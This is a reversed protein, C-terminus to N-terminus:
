WKKGDADKDILKRTLKVLRRKDNSGVYGRVVFWKGDNFLYGYCEVDSKVFADVTKDVRPQNFEPNEGRDRRYAVVVGYQPADFSHEWRPDPNVNPKLKSISGLFILEEVKKRDRYHSLLIDGNYQLEGNNHCYISAVTGDTRVIGIRSRTAM